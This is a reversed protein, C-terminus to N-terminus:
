IREFIIQKRLYLNAVAITVPIRQEAGLMEFPLSDSNTYNDDALAAMFKLVWQTITEEGNGIPIFAPFFVGIDM